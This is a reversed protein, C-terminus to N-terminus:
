HLVKSNAATPLFVALVDCNVQHILKAATSPVIKALRLHQCNGVILLDIAQQEVQQVISEKLCGIKVACNEATIGYEAAFIALEQQYAQLCENIEYDIEVQSLLEHGHCPYHDIVYFLQLNAQVEDAFAKAKVVLQAANAKNLDVVCCIHQYDAESNKIFLTDHALQRLLAKDDNRHLFVYEPKHETTVVLDVQLQEVVNRTLTSIENTDAVWSKVETSTESSGLSCISAVIGSCGYPSIHPKVQLQNIDAQLKNAIARARGAFYAQKGTTTSDVTMLIRKHSM